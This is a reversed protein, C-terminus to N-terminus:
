RETFTKDGIYRWMKTENTNGDYKIERMIEQLELESLINNIRLIRNTYDKNNKYIELFFDKTLCKKPNIKFYDIAKGRITKEEKRNKHEGLKFFGKIIDKCLDYIFMRDGGRVYIDGSVKRKGKYYHKSILWDYFSKM